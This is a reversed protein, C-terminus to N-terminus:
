LAMRYYVGVIYVAMSFGAETLILHARATGEDGECLGAVACEVGSNRLCLALNIITREAGGLRLDTTLM